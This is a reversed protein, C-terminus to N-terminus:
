ATTAQTEKASFDWIIITGDNCGALIQDNDVQLCTINQNAQLTAHHDGKM